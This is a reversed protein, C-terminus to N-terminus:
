PPCGQRQWEKFTACMAETWKQEGSNPPPMTGHSVTLYIADAKASVEAHSSLDLGFSKMHAVDVDTFMPRINRAFSLSGTASPQDMAPEKDTV